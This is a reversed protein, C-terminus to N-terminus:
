ADLDQHLYWASSTHPCVQHIDEFDPIYASLDGKVEGQVSVVGDKQSVTDHDTHLRSAEVDAKAGCHIRLLHCIYQLLTTGTKPYTAIYIDGKRHRVAYEVELCALPKNLHHEPPEHGIIAHLYQRPESSVNREIGEVEAM